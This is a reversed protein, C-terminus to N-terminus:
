FLNFRILKRPLLFPLLQFIEELGHKDNIDEVCRKLHVKESETNTTINVHFRLHRNLNTGDDFAIYRSAQVSSVVVTEVDSDETIMMLIDQDGKLETRKQHIDGFQDLPLSPLYLHNKVSINWAKAVSEVKLRMCDGVSLILDSERFWNVLLDEDVEGENNLPVTHSVLIVKPSHGKHIGRTMDRLNLCGNVLYPIHGIIFDYKNKMVLHQYYTGTSQDLWRTEPETKSGWLQQSGKLQVGLKKADKLDTEPIAGDEAIVACVIKIFRNKPDIARLNKVLSRNLMSIGYTDFQWSFSLALVQTVPTIGEDTTETTGESM